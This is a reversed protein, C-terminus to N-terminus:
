TNGRREIVAVIRSVSRLLACGRTTCNQEFGCNLCAGPRGEEALRQLQRAAGPPPNDYPVRICRNADFKLNRM